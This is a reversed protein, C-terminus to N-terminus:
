FLGPYVVVQLFGLELQDAAVREGRASRLRRAPAWRVNARLIIPLSRAPVIDWGAVAAPVLRADRAVARRTSDEDVVRARDWGLSAGVFPAFGNYDVLSRTVEASVIARDLRRGAGFASQRQPVTRRAVQYGIGRDHDRWGLGWDGYLRTPLRAGLWPADAPTSPSVTMATSAGAALMAGGRWGRRRLRRMGRALSAQRAPTELPRTTDLTWRAGLWGSWPAVSARGTADRAVPYAFSAAPLWQLGGVVIADATRWALGGQLPMRYLRMAPGPGRPGLERYRLETWAAGVFPRVTGSSLPLPFLRAGTEIGSSARVDLPGAGDDLTRHTPVPVTVYFDARGWFHLGGVAVRVGPTARLPAATAHAGGGPALADVGLWTQAFRYRRRAALSPGPTPASDAAPRVSAPTGGAVLSDAQAPLREAAVCLLAVAVLAERSPSAIGTTWRDPAHM